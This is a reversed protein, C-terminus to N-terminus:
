ALVRLIFTAQPVAIESGFNRVVLHLATGAAWRATVQLRVTEVEKLGHTTTTEARFLQGDALLSLGLPHPRDPDLVDLIAEASYYGDFPCVVGGAIAWGATPAPSARDLTVGGTSSVDAVKHFTATRLDLQTPAGNFALLPMGRVLRIGSAAPPRAEASGAVTSFQPLLSMPWLSGLRPSSSQVWTFRVVSSSAGPLVLRQRTELQAVFSAPIATGRAPLGGEDFRLLADANALRGIRYRTHHRDTWGGGFFTNKVTVNDVYAGTCFDFGIHPWLHKQDVRVMNRSFEVMEVVSGDTDGFRIGAEPVQRGLQENEKAIFRCRTIRAFRARRLWVNVKRNGDIEVGDVRAFQMGSMATSDLFIGIGATTEDGNGGVAGGGMDLAGHTRIGGTTNAVIQCGRLTLILCVAAEIGWGRNWIFRCDYASLISQQGDNGIGPLLPVDLGNGRFNTVSIRDFRYLWAGSLSIGHQNRGSPAYAGVLELDRIMGDEAFKYPEAQEIQIAPGDAIRCDIITAHVGEGILKLGASHRGPPSRFVLSRTILWTGAPIRVEAGAAADIAAQIAATDDSKGDGRAGFMRVSIPGDHLRFWRGARDAGRGLILGGDESDVAEPQWVFAGGGGDDERHYGAVMAVRPTRLEPLDVLQRVTAASVIGGVQEPQGRAPRVALAGLAALVLMNRREHM